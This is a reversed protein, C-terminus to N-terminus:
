SGGRFTTKCRNSIVGAEVLDASRRQVDRHPHRPRMPGEPLLAGRGSDRRHWAALHRPRAGVRGRRRGIRREIEGISPPNGTPLARDTDVVAAFRSIHVASNGLTRPVQPNILGIVIRANDAAARACAISVGLRCFGHKDPPSVQLLAVDVALAGGAILRPIDSMFVPTYDARGDNVAERVNAGVFLANHRIHGEMEPAVYHAPGETHLSITEVNHLEPARRVLAEILEHPTMAAEHLYVRDGSHILGAAEDATMTRSSRMQAPSQAM